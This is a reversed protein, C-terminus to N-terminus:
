KTVRPTGGEAARRLSSSIVSNRERGTKKKIAPASSPTYAMRLASGFSNRSAASLGTSSVPSPQFIRSKSSLSKSHSRSTSNIAKTNAEFLARAAPTLSASRDYSATATTMSTASSAISADDLAATKSDKNLLTKSGASRYTKARENLKKEARHALKERSNEEVVDFEIGEGIQANTYSISPETPEWDAAPNNGRDVAM